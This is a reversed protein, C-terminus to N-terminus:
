EQQLSPYRHLRLLPNRGHEFELIYRPIAQHEKFVVYQPYSDGCDNPVFLSHYDGMGMMKGMWSGRLFEEPKGRVRSYSGIRKSAGLYVDCLVMYGDRAIMSAVLGQREKLCRRLFPSGSDDRAHTVAETANDTFYIGPGHWYRRSSDPLKFGGVAISHACSQSTGHLLLTPAGLKSNEAEYSAFLANRKVRWLKKMRLMAGGNKLLHESLRDWDSEDQLVEEIALENMEAAMCCGM